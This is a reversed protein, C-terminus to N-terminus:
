VGGPIAHQPPAKAPETGSMAPLMGQMDATAPAHIRPLPIRSGRSFIQIINEVGRAKNVDFCINRM